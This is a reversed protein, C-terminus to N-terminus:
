RIAQVDNAAGAVAKVHGVLGRIAYRMGADDGIEVFQLALEGRHIALSLQGIIFDRLLELKADDVPQAHLM